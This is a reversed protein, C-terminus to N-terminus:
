VRIVPFGAAALELCAEDDWFTSSDSECKYAYAAAEENDDEFKCAVERYTGFDHPNNRIVLRAGEPEDGFERRLQHIFARCEAVNRAAFDEDKGIAACDEDCPAPGIEICEM